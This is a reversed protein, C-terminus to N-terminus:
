AGAKKLGVSAAGMAFRTLMASGIISLAEGVGSLGVLALVDGPMGGLRSAALNLATTLLPLLAATTALSLGAGQLMRAISDGFLKELLLRLNKFM